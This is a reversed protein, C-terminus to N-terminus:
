SRRLLGIFHARLFPIRSLPRYLQTATRGLRYALPPLLTIAELDMVFGPFLRGIRAKTMARVNRNWPNPYRLDYWAVAGDPKMVRAIERAMAIATAEDLVSSFVTSVLVIDFLADAFQLHEANGEQFSLSPHRRRAMEVVNPLLDIGFIGSSPVGCENLWALMGGNGCGVELVRCQSLPRGFRTTLFRKLAEDRERLMPGYAPNHDNWRGSHEYEAYARRIRDIEKTTVAAAGSQDRPISLLRV